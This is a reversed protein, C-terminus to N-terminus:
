GMATFRILHDGGTADDRAVRGEEELVELHGIIESVALFLEYRRLRPFLKKVMQFLTQPGSQLIDYVLLKRGEIFQLLADIRENPNEIVRGHGPLALRLGLTRVKKLSSIFAKLSGYGEPIVSPRQVIPNSSINYLLFDGTFAIRNDTDHILMCWPTHGPVSTVSFVATGIQVRSADELYRKPTLDCGYRRAWGGFKRRVYDIWEVPAGAKLLLDHQFAEEDDINDRRFCGGTGAAAWVEAGSRSVIDGTLGYHDFHPHTLIIRRIDRISFGMANLHDGLLRLFSRGRPPTDILTPVPEEVFYVNLPEVPFPVPIVLRHIGFQDTDPQM